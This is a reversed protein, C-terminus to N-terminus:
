RKEVDILWLEYYLMTNPLVGLSDCGASSFALNSPVWAEIHGGEGILKSAEIIGRQMSGVGVRLTDQKYYTTDVVKKHFELKPIKEM